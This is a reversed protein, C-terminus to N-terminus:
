REDGILFDLALRADTRGQWVPHDPPLGHMAQRLRKRDKPTTEAALIVPDDVLSALFALDRRHRDPDLNDTASAIAKLVIAGLLSPRPIWRVTGAIDVPVCETRLLAQTAGPAQFARGGPVTTLDTRGGTREPVLVDVIL